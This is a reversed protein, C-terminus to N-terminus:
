STSTSATSPTAPNSVPATLYGRLYFVLELSFVEGGLSVEHEVALPVKRHEFERGLYTFSDATRLLSRTVLSGPRADDSELYSPNFNFARADGQIGNPSTGLVPLYMAESRTSM